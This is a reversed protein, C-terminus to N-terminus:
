ERDIGGWFSTCSSDIDYSPGNGDVNHSSTVNHDVISWSVDGEFRDSHYNHDVPDKTSDPNVGQALEEPQADKTKM